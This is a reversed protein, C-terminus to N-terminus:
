AEPVPGVPLTVRVAPAPDRWDWSSDMVSQRFTRGPVTLTLETPAPHASDQEWVIVAPVAVDPSFARAGQGDLLRLVRPRVDPRLGEVNLVLDNVLTAAFVPADSTNTVDVTVMVYRVGETASAVPKLEDGQFAKKVVLEFPAAKAAVSPETRIVQDEDADVAADWGGLLGAVLLVLALLGLGVRQPTFIDSVLAYRKRWTEMRSKARQPTHEAM